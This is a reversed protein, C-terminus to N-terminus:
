VPHFCWCAYLLATFRPPTFYAHIITTFTVTQHQQPPHFLLHYEDPRGHKRRHTGSYIVESDLYKTIRTEYAQCYLLQLFLCIPLWPAFPGDRTWGEQGYLDCLLYNVLFSEFIIYLNSLVCARHEFLLDRSLLLHLFLSM